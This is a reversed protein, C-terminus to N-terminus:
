DEVLKLLGVSVLKKWNAVEVHPLEYFDSKPEGFWRVFTPLNPKLVHLFWEIEYIDRQSQGMEFFDLAANYNHASEGWRARSAGAHYYKNQDERGRGACSIHAEPHRAQFGLFWDMLPEYFGPYKGLISLCKLCKGNNEHRPSIAM